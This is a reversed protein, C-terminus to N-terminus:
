FQSALAAHPLSFTWPCDSLFCSMRSQAPRQHHTRLHLGMHEAQSLQLLRGGAPKHSSQPTCSLAGCHQPFRYGVACGVPARRVGSAPMGARIAHPLM